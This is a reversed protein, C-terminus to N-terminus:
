NYFYRLPPGPLFSYWFINKERKLIQFLIIYIANLPCKKVIRLQISLKAHSSIYVDVKCFYNLSFFEPSHSLISFFDDTPKVYTGQEDYVVKESMWMNM